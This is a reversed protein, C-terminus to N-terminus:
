DHECDNTAADYYYSPGLLQKCKLDKAAYLKNYWEAFDQKRQRRENIDKLWLRREQEEETKSMVHHMMLITVPCLSIDDDLELFFPLL